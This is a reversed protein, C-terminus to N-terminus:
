KQPDGVGRREIEREMLQAHVRAEKQSAFNKTRRQTKGGPAPEQWVSQWRTTGRSTISKRVSAMNSARRTKIIPPEARARASAPSANSEACRSGFGVNPAAACRSHSRSHM